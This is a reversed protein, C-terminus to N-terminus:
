IKFIKFYIGLFIVILVLINFVLLTWCWRPIYRVQREVEIPIEKTIVTDKLVLRDKYIIRTKEEIPDEVLETNLVNLTTDIWTTSHSRNGNVKLTDLLKGYEKYRSREIVRISDKIHFVTSDKVHVETSTNVPIEKPTGCAVALSLAIIAGLLGVTQRLVPKYPRSTYNRTEPALPGDVPKNRTKPKIM